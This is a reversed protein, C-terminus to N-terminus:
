DRTKVRIRKSCALTKRREIDGNAKFKTKLVFRSRIPKRSLPYDKWENANPDTFAETSDSDISKIVGATEDDPEIETNSDTPAANYQEPPRGLSGTKLKRPRRPGKKMNPVVLEDEEM